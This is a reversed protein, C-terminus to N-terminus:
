YLKKKFYSSSSSFYFFGGRLSTDYILAEAPGSIVRTDCAHQEDPPSKYRKYGEKFSRNLWDDGKKKERTRGNAVVSTSAKDDFGM